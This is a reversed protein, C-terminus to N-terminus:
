IEWDQRKTPPPNRKKWPLKFGGKWSSPRAADGNKPVSRGKKSYGAVHVGGLIVPEKLETGGPLAERRIHIHAPDVLLLHILLCARLACTMDVYTCAVTVVLVCSYVCLLLCCCVHVCVCRYHKILHELTFFKVAAAEAGGQLYLTSDMSRMIPYM